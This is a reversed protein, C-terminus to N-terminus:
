SKDKADGLGRATLTANAIANTFEDTGLDLDDVKSLFEKESGSEEALKLIPDLMPKMQDEWSMLAAEEIEDVLDPKRAIEQAAMHVITDKMNRKQSFGFGGPQAMDSIPKITEAGEGAEPIGFKDLIISNEVKLGRDIFQTISSTFLQLDEQEDLVLKFKPYENVSRPGYNLDVVPKILDRMITASLKRADAKIIDFRVNEQANDAGLKGPTGETTATQGLVGKSVQGDLYGALNAFLAGGDSRSSSEHFEIMMGEPIIGAGDAGIAAVAALLLSQEEPTAGSEFKGM